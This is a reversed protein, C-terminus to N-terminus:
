ETKGGSDVPKSKPAGPTLGPIKPPEKGTYKRYVTIFLQLYNIQLESNILIAFVAKNILFVRNADLIIM